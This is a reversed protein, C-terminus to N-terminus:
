ASCGDLAAAVKWCLVRCAERESGSKGDTSTISLCERVAAAYKSGMQGVLEGTLDLLVSQFKLAPYNKDFSELTQWLGIELLVCGLRFCKDSFALSPSPTNYPAQSLLFPFPSHLSTRV